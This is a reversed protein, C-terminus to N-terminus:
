ANKAQHLLTQPTIIISTQITHKYIQDESTTIITPIHSSVEENTNENIETYSFAESYSKKSLALNQRDLTKEFTLLSEQLHLILTLLTQQKAPHVAMRYLEHLERRSLAAELDLYDQYFEEKINPYVV